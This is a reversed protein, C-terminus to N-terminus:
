WSTSGARWRAGHSLPQAESQIVVCVRRGVVLQALWLTGSIFFSAWRSIFAAGDVPPRLARQVVRLWQTLHWHWVDAGHQVMPLPLM